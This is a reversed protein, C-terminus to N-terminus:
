KAIIHGCNPCTYGRTKPGFLIFLKTEKYEKINTNCSPCNISGDSKIPVVIKNSSMFKELDEEKKISEKTVDKEMVLEITNGKRGLLALPLFISGLAFTKVASYGHGVNNSNRIEWGDKSMREITDGM